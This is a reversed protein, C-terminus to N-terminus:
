SPSKRTMGPPCACKGSADFSVTMIARGDAILHARATSRLRWSRVEEFHYWEDPLFANELVGIHDNPQREVEEQRRSALFDRRRKRSARPEAADLKRLAASLLAHQEVLDFFRPFWLFDDGAPLAPLPLTSYRRSATSFRRIVPIYSCQMHPCSASTTVLPRHLFLPPLLLGRRVTRSGPGRAVHCSRPARTCGMITM